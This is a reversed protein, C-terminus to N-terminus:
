YNITYQMRSSIVRKSWNKRGSKAKSPWKNQRELNVYVKQNLNGNKVVYFGDVPDREFFLNEKPALFRVKIEDALKEVKEQRFHRFFALGNIFNRLNEREHTM